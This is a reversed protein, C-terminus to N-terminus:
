YGQYNTLVLMLPSKIFIHLEPAYVWVIKEFQIIFWIIMFYALICLFSDRYKIRDFALPYIFPMFPMLMMFFRYQSTPQRSMAATAVIILSTLVVLFSQSANFNHRFAFLRRICILFMPGGIALVISTKLGLGDNNNESSAFRRVSYTLADGQSFDSSSLLRPGYYILCALAMFTIFITAKSLKKRYRKLVIFPVFFLMSQHTFISCVMIVWDRKRLYGNYAYNGVVYMMFSQALFQKQIQLTFQFYLYFFAMILTGYIIPLHPTPLTKCFKYLGTLLLFYSLFTLMFEFLPYYGFSLYYGIYNYVGNMFEGSIHTNVEQWSEPDGYINILAYWFGKIPVNNYAYWYRVQDGDVSKTANISALLVIICCIFIYYNTKSPKPEKLASYIIWPLGIFSPLLMFVLVYGLLKRTNISENKIQLQCM